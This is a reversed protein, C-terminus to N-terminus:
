ETSIFKSLLKIYSAQYYIAPESLEWSNEPYGDNFDLYCKQLPQKSIETRSGNYRSNPGGPMFGPVPNKDWASGNRFWDHYIDDTCFEAGYRYMNSLYVVGLPNVGHFYHLIGLARNIYKSKNSGYLNYTIFDYNASGLAARPNNSGWNYLTRPLYAMYLDDKPRYQYLHLGYGQKERYSLIENKAVNDANALTTYYFLADGVYSFYLYHYIDYFLSTTYFRNKVVENYKEEGTIAFLYIAAVVEEEDQNRFGLDADGSKIEQSDCTDSRSNNRYWEWAKLARDKLERSYGVLEHFESFVLAAHAFMGATAISSSSCKPGYYRPRKDASPPNASSYDINGLKILVGGDEQQMKKIWELEYLIEDIIDPIGNGSEPINYDDSFIGPNQQYSTLLLHVPSAAFTVYKNYDGADMWGGSLDKATEANGKDYVYRAEKDQGADMFAAKDIWPEEACPKEKPSNLRQYYFTRVAAKLIDKYVDPAIKFKYSGTKQKKDYIYYEGEEKVKSFDFWWGKDGSTFDISGRNWETISDSYVVEDNDWRRVEYVTGPNFEDGANFGIQPNVIVAVKNDEPRYGFQDVMIYKQISDPEAYVFSMVSCLLLCIAGFRTKGGM